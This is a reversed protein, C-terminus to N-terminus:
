SRAQRLRPDLALAAVDVLSSAFVFVASAFFAVGLVLPMDESQIAAVAIHGLGPRGFVEETIAAGGLLGGVLLGGITVAPLAAHLLAHVRKTRAISAGRSRATLVYPRTLEGDLDERLVQTLYAGQPIGIALAPLVLSSLGNDGVVPFWRLQFSFVTLLILGLWFSPVSLVALEAGGVLSRVTGRKGALWLSLSLSVVVAILLAAGVLQLTSGIQSTFDDLVPKNQVYSTGFDGRVIGALYDVYQVLVPRDLGWEAVVKARLELDNREQGLLTDIMDGPALHMGVFTVTVAIWVVFVSQVARRAVLRAVARRRASRVARAEGSDRTSSPGAAPSAPSEAPASPASPASTVTTRIPTAAASM